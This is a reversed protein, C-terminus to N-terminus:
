FYSTRATIPAFMGDVNDEVKEEDLDERDTPEASSSREGTCVDTSEQLSAARETASMATM